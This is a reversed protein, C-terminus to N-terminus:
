VAIAYIIVMIAIFVVLLLIVLFPSATDAIEKWREKRDDRPADDGNGGAM